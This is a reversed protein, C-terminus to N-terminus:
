RKRKVPRKRRQPVPSLHQQEDHHQQDLQRTVEDRLREAETLVQNLRALVDRLREPPLTQRKRDDSM